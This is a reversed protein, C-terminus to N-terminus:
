DSVRSERCSVLQMSPLSPPSPRHTRVPTTNNESTAAQSQHCIPPSQPASYSTEATKSKLKAMESSDLASGPKKYGQQLISSAAPLQGPLPASTPQQQPKRNTSTSALNLNVPTQTMHKQLQVNRAAASNSSPLLWERLGYVGKGLNVVSPSKNERITKNLFAKMSEGATGQSGTFRILGLRLAQRTIVDYHTPKQLQHLVQIVAELRSVPPAGIRANQFNTGLPRSGPNYYATGSTVDEPSLPELARARKVEPGGSQEAAAGATTPATAPRKVKNEVDPSTKRKKSLLADGEILAAVAASSKEEIADSAAQAKNEQVAHPPTDESKEEASPCQNEGESYEFWADDEKWDEEPQDCSLGNLMNCIFKTKSDVVFGEPVRRWKGCEDCGAWLEQVSENQDKGQQSGFRKRSQIRGKASMGMPRHRLTMPRKDCAASLQKLDELCIQRPLTVATKAFRTYFWPKYEHLLSDREKQTMATIDRGNKAQAAARAEARARARGGTINLTNAVPPPEPSSESEPQPRPPAETLIAELPLPAADYRRPSAEGELSPM